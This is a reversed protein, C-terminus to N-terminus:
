REPVVITDGPKVPLANAYPTVKGDVSIVRVEDVSRAFRTLGGATALYDDLHFPAQYPQAGPRVVAGEILVSRRQYPITLVDGMEINRDASFDRRVLLAELDIPVGSERRLVGALQLD